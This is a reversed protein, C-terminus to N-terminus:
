ASCLQAKNVRSLFVFLLVYLGSNLERFRRFHTYEYCVGGPSYFYLYREIMLEETGRYHSFTTLVVILTSPSPCFKGGKAM